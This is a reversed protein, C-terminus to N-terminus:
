EDCGGLCTFGARAPIIGRLADGGGVGRPLGRALPSSGGTRPLIRCASMYVGRSRPHDSCRSSPFVRLRRLGRALPSSGRISQAVSIATLYVGRSRPHDARCRTGTGPRATFGARAPIIGPQHGGPPDPRPYVGRSRPHDRTATRASAVRSTFGARAPIIRPQVCVGSIATPLGRALPSSGLRSRAGLFLSGTFGARAPIIRADTYDAPFFVRLGRALPSSGPPVTKMSTTGEYVGRSRPHDWARTSPAPEGITFGARAPIIGGAHALTSPPHPLGRALPSSGEASWVPTETHPYVGRSRPHDPSPRGRRPGGRTFGARAPIIGSGWHSAGCKVPLGRALPSSGRTITAYGYDNGYVGRSRPHDWTTRSLPTDSRTFGARAPSIRAHVGGLHRVQRLGRALPSSGGDARYLVGTVDYVGRSRPHDEVSEAEGRSYRTFGARAPIIRAEIEVALGAELLGRALPSSGMRRYVPSVSSVYVGRSRPHDLERVADPDNTQTFGARAPIIGMVQGIGLTRNLLGRALPSSGWRSRVERRWPAYVGRMRPCAPIIRGPAAPRARGHRLGRALPSSGGVETVVLCVMHYVERM